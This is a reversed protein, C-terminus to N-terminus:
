RRGLVSLVSTGKGLIPGSWLTESNPRKHLRLITRRSSSARSFGTVSAPDFVFAVAETYEAIRETTIRGRANRWKGEWEAIRELCRPRYIRLIGLFGVDGDQLSINWIAHFAHSNVNFHLADIIRLWEHLANPLYVMQAQSIKRVKNEGAGIWWRMFWHVFEEVIYPGLEKDILDVFETVTLKGQDCQDTLENLAVMMVVCEELTPCANSAKAGAYLADVFHHFAAVTLPHPFRSGESMRKMRAGVAMPSDNRDHQSEKSLWALIDRMQPSDEDVFDATALLAQPDQSGRARWRSQFGKIAEEEEKMESLTKRRLRSDRGLGVREGTGDSPGQQPLHPGSMTGKAFFATAGEHLDEGNDKSARASGAGKGYSHDMLLRTRQQQTLLANQRTIAEASGNRDMRQDRSSSQQVFKIIRELQEDLEKELERRESRIETKSILEQLKTARVNLTRLMAKVTDPVDQQQQTHAKEQAAHEEAEKRKKAAQAAATQREKELLAAAMQRADEQQTRRAIVEAAKRNEVEEAALAVRRAEERAAADSNAGLAARAESGSIQLLSSLPAARQPGFPFMRGGTAGVGGLEGAVPAARQRGADGSGQAAARDGAAGADSTSSVRAAENQAVSAAFEAAIQAREDAGAAGGNVQQNSVQNGGSADADQAGQAQNINSANEMTADAGAADQREDYKEELVRESQAANQEQADGEGGQNQDGDISIETATDAVTSAGNAALAGATSGRRRGRRGRVAEALDTTDARASTRTRRRSSM